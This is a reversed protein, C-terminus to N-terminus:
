YFSIVEGWTTCTWLWPLRREERLAAERYLGRRSGATQRGGGGWGVENGDRGGLCWIGSVELKGAEGM